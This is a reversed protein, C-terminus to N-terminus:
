QVGLIPKGSLRDWLTRKIEPTRIIFPTQFFTVRDPFEYNVHWCNGCDSSPNEIRFRYIMVHEFPEGWNCDLCAFRWLRVNDLAAQKLIPHGSLVTAELVEGKSSLRLAVKIDSEIQAQKALPPYKIAPDFRQVSIKHEQAVASGALLCTFVLYISLRQM